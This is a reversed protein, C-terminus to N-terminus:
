LLFATDHESTIITKFLSHNVFMPASLCFLNLSQPSKETVLKFESLMTTQANVYPQKAEKIRPEFEQAHKDGNGKIDNFAKTFSTQLNAISSQFEMREDMLATQTTGLSPPSLSNDGATAAAANSGNETHQMKNTHHCSPM